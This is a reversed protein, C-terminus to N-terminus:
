GMMKQMFETIAKQTVREPLDERPISTLKGCEPCQFVFFRPDGNISQGYHCHVFIDDESVALHSGCGGGGENHIVGTCTRVIEWTNSKNSSIVRM